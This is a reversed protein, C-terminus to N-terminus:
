PGADPGRPPEDAGLLWLGVGVAAGAAAATGEPVELARLVDRTAGAADLATPARGTALLDVLRTALPDLAGADVGLRRLADHLRALRPRGPGDAGDGLLLQCLEGSLDAVAARDVAGFAGTVAATTTEDLGLARLATGVVAPHTFAVYPDLRCRTALASRTMVRRTVRGVLAGGAADTAPAAPRALTAPAAPALL